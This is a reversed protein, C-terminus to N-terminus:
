GCSGEEGSGLFVARHLPTTTRQQTRCSSVHLVNDEADAAGRPDSTYFTPLLMSPIPSTDPPLLHSSLPYLVICHFMFHTYLTPATDLSSFLVNPLLLYSPSADRSTDFSGPCSSISLLFTLHAVASSVLILHGAELGFFFSAFCLLLFQVADCHLGSPLCAITRALAEPALLCPSSRSVFGM